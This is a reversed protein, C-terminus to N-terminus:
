IVGHSNLFPGYKKDEGKIHNQLWGRLFNLLRFDVVARGEKFETIFAVVQDVLAKHIKKHQATEPYGFKDFYKEELAFHNVTYNALEGLIDGIGETKGSTLCRYLKNVMGFLVKHQEDIERVRVSFVEDDWTVFDRNAADGVVETLEKAMKMQREAMDRINNVGELTVVTGKAVDEIKETIDSSSTAVSSLNSSIENTTASQEEVAGVITTFVEEIDNIVAAIRSIAEVARTSASQVSEIKQSIDDTATRTERALEKIEGAVVAFGKGAEGVRAAEITANLALLNTQQAISTITKIVEGIEESSGSLESVIQNARESLDVASRTMNSANSTNHSIEKIAAHMEEMGTAVTHISSSVDNSKGSVDKARSSIKEANGSMSASMDTLEQAAGSLTQASHSIMGIIADLMENVGLCVDRYAGSFGKVEARRNFNGERTANILGSVESLLTKLTQTTDNLKETLVGEKRLNKSSSAEEDFKGSAVVDLKTAFVKLTDGIKRYANGLKGPVEHKLEESEIDERALSDAQMLLTEINLKIDSLHETRDSNRDCPLSEVDMGISELTAMLFADGVTQMDLNFVKGIAREVAMAEELNDFEERLEESVLQLYEAYSGMYWKFPLNIQDHRLGIKLRKEMYNVGWGEKAGAFVEKFYQSQAKELMIRLRDINMGNQLSYEKFFAKTPGFTFQWDYFRKSLKDAVRNAWGTLAGLTKQEEKGLRIFDKRLQLNEPTIGFKSVLTM